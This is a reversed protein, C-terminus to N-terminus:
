LETSLWFCLPVESEVDSSAEVKRKSYKILKPFKDHTNTSSVRVKLFLKEYDWNPYLTEIVKRLLKFQISYLNVMKLILDASSYDHINVDVTRRTIIPFWFCDCAVHM